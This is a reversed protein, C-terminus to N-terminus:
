IRNITKLSHRVIRMETCTLEGDILVRYKGLVKLEIDTMGAPVVPSKDSGEEVRMARAPAHKRKRCGTVCFYYRPITPPVCLNIWRDEDYLNMVWGCECPISPPIDDNTVATGKMECDLSYICHRGLGDVCAVGRTRRVDVV